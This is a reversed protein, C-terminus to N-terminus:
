TDVTEESCIAIEITSAKEKIMYKEMNALSHNWLSTGWVDQVMKATNSLETVEKGHNRVM